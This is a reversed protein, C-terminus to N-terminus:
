GPAEGADAEQWHAVASRLRLYAISGPLIPLWFSIIRYALVALVATSGSVGFAIFAGIMGGEVGGIGGPLPLANALQGM